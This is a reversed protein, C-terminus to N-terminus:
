NRIVFGTVHIQSTTAETTATDVQIYLAIAGTAGGIGRNQLFPVPSYQRGAARLRMPPATSSGVRLLVDVDHSNSNSITLYVFDRVNSVTTHVLTPAAGQKPIELPVSNRSILSDILIKGMRQNEGENKKM